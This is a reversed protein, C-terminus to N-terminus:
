ALSKRRRAFTRWLHGERWSFGTKHPKAHLFGYLFRATDKAAGRLMISAGGPKLHM